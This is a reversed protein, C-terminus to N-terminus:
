PRVIDESNSSSADSLINAVVKSIQKTSRTNYWEKIDKEIKDFDAPVLASKLNFYNKGEVLSDYLKKKGMSVNVPIVAFATYASFIGSKGLIEAPYEIAGFRARNLIPAVEDFRLAGKAVFRVSSNNFAITGPGIDVIEEINTKRLFNAFGSSQYVANRRSVSGFVVMLTDRKKISPDYLHDPINSYIGTCINNSRTKGLLNQLIIQYVQCNTFTVFSLGYLQKVLKKQLYSSYFPLSLPNYSTSYLEHFFILIKCSYNTKYKKLVQYLYFPMGHKQYAYGVYHLLITDPNLSELQQLLSEKTFEIIEDEIIAASEGKDVVLFTNKTFGAEELNDVLIKSFDGLGNITPPLAPTIHVIKM